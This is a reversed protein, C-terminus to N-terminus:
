PAARSLKQIVARVASELEDARAREAALQDRLRRNEDELRHLRPDRRSARGRAEEVDLRARELAVKLERSETLLRQVITPEPASPKAARTSM